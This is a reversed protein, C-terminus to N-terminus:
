GRRRSSAEETLEVALALLAKDTGPASLLSIGVPASGSGTEGDEAEALAAAPITVQPAGAFGSACTLRLQSARFAEVERAASTRPIPPGPASPLVVVAGDRTLERLRAAAADRTAAARAVIRLEAEPDAKADRAADRAACFRDRVGPGFGELRADHAEIWGGLARWVERTQLARFADWWEALPPAAPLGRADRTEDPSPDREREAPAGGGGGLRVGRRNAAGFVRANKAALRDVCRRLTEATAGDCAEFADEAVAARVFAFDVGVVDDPLLADGGRRLTEADRAFWGLTDFSPALPVCGLMSVAGHTPRFGFVGCYSAPVRVSGATDTGLALDCFGAAVAVASGSSSGGPILSPVAPNTPTGYHANQGQLAWALEDMQTKGVFVAGANVFADVARASTEAPSPHAALWRPSGAGTRAGRVDLNDKVAFTLSSLCGPGAAPTRSATSTSTLLAERIRSVTAADCHDVFCGGEGYRPIASAVGPSALTSDASADDDRTVARARSVGRGATSAFGGLRRARTSRARPGRARAALARASTSSM